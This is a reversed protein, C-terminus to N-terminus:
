SATPSQLQDLYNKIKELEIVDMQDRPRGVAKKNALLDNIHLFPVKVGDLDAIKANTLCEDFSKNELGKMSTMIDLLLGDAVYFQTWGPIFEMTEFSPYDGLGLENYANRFNRRNHLTDELWIDSDKTSRIFGNMNVAFGGVMIYKVEHKNLVRWFDLLGDDMIDM